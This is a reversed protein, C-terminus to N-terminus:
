EGDSVAQASTSAVRRPSALRNLYAMHGHGRSIDGDASCLQALNHRRASVSESLQWRHAWSFYVGFPVNPNALRGSVIVLSLTKAGLSSVRRQSEDARGWDRRRKESITEQVGNALWYCKGRGQFIPWGISITNRMTGIDNHFFWNVEGRGIGVVAAKAGRGVRGLYFLCTSAQEAARRRAAWLRKTEHRIVRASPQPGGPGQDRAGQRIAGVM